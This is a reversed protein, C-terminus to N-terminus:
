DVPLITMDPDPVCESGSTGAPENEHAGRAIWDRIADREAQPLLPNSDPMHSGYGVDPNVQTVPLNLKIFLFSNDPDCPKVRLRKEDQAKQNVAPALVLAMYAADLTASSGCLTMPGTGRNPAACLNLMNADSEGPDSHCSQSVCGPQLINASIQAFNTAIPAAM